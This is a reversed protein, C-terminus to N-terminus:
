PVPGFWLMMAASTFSYLAYGCAAAYVVAVYDLAAGDSKGASMNVSM